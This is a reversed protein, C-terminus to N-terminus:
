IADTNINFAPGPALNSEQEPRADNVSQRDEKARITLQPQKPDFEDKGVLLGDWTKMMDCRKYVFGSLDSVANHTGLKLTSRRPM